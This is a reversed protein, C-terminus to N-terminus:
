VNAAERYMAIMNSPAANAAKVQTLFCSFTDKFSTQPDVTVRHGNQILSVMVQSINFHDMALQQPLGILKKVESYVYPRSNNNFKDTRLGKLDGDNGKAINYPMVELNMLKTELAKANSKEKRWAQKSVTLTHGEDWDAQMEKNVHVGRRLESIHKKFRNKVPHETMGIYTRSNDLNTIKYISYM